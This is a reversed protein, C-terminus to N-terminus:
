IREKFYMAFTVNIKYLCSLFFPGFYSFFAVVRECKRARSDFLVTKRYKKMENYVQKRIKKKHFPIKMYVMRNVSFARSAVAITLNSCNKSIDNYIQKSIYICSLMKPTFPQRIISENRIRYGYLKKLSSVIMKSKLFLKYTTGLDEYYLGIPYSINDFLSKKYLKCHAGTHVCGQYLMEVLAEEPTYLIYPQPSYISDPFIIEKESFKQYPCIAIDANSNELLEFLYKVFISSIVDDSDIFTILEGRSIAIGYNRADSLGGNKKHFVKIRSDNLAYYDCIKGSCDTSGDDVLIIELKNYTQCIISEICQSLYKEVNYVPVVVSILPEKNM